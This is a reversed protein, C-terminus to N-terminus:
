VVSKRDKDSLLNDLPTSTSRESLNGKLQLVFVSNKKVSTEAQSASLFGALSVIGLISMVIGTVMLGVITALTYKLFDKM